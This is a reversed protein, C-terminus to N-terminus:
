PRLAALLQQLHHSNAALDGRGVRSQSEARFSSGQADAFVTLQIDDKFKWLPTEVMMEITHNEADKRSLKWGLSLSTKLVHEFLQDVTLDFHPATLEPLIPASSIEAHNSTLFLKLRPMFGPAQNLNAQNMMLVLFVIIIPTSILLWLLMLLRRKTQTPKM